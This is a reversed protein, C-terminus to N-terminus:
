KIFSSIHYATVGHEEAYKLYSLADDIFITEELNHFNHSTIWNWMHNKSGKIIVGHQTVIDYDTKGCNFYNLFTDWYEKPVFWFM